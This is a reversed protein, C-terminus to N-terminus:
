AHLKRTRLADKIKVMGGLVQIIQGLSPIAGLVFGFSSNTSIVPTALPAALAAFMIVADARSLHRPRHRTRGSARSTLFIAAMLALTGVAASGAAIATASGILALVAGGLGIAGIFTLVGAVREGRTPTQLAFGRADMSEALAQELRVDLGRRRLAARLRAAATRVEVRGTHGVIAVRAFAM